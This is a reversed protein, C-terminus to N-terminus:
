GIPPPRLSFCTIHAQLLTPHPINNSHSIGQVAPLPMEIFLPIIFAQLFVQVQPVNNQAQGVTYHELHNAGEDLGFIDDWIGHEKEQDPTCIDAVDEATHCHPVIQHAILLALAVFALISTIRKMVQVAFICNLCM